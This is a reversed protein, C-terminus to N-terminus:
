HRACTKHQAELADGDQARVPTSITFAALVELAAGLILVKKM